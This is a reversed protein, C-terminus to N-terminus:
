LIDDISLRVIHLPTAFKLVLFTLISYDFTLYFIRLWYKLREQIFLPKLDIINM